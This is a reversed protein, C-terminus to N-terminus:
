NLMASFLLVSATISYSNKRPPLILRVDLVEAYVAGDRVLRETELGRVHYRIVARCLVAYISDVPM